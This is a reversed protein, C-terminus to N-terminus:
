EDIAEIWPEIEERSYGANLLENVAREKHVDIDYPIIKEKSNLIIAGIRSQDSINIKIDEYFGVLVSLTRNFRGTFCKCESDIIQEELIKILEAKDISKEIRQWVYSLLEMFTILHISHITDDQCYEILSEITKSNLNSNIILDISFNPKPDKLLCQISDCVTRQITVDHVNQNDSYISSKHNNNIRNLLRQIQITQPELPNGNCDM